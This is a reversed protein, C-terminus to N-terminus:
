IWCLICDIAWFRIDGATHRLLAIVDPLLPRGLEGLESAIIVALRGVDQDSSSLLPRLHELPFGRHFQIELELALKSAEESRPNQVIADLLENARKSDVERM